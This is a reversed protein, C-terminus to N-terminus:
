KSKQLDYNDIKLQPIKQLASLIDKGTNSIISKYVSIYMSLLNLSNDELVCHAGDQILKFKYHLYNIYENIPKNFRSCDEIFLVVIDTFSSITTEAAINICDNLPLSDLFSHVKWDIGYGNLQNQASSIIIKIDQSNSAFFSVFRPKIDLQSIELIKKDIKDQELNRIDIILYYSLKAKSIIWNKIDINTVLEQNASYVNKSFGYCCKYDKIYYFNDVISLDHDNKIIEILNFECPNSTSAEHSFICNKCHTSTM